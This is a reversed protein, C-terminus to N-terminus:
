RTVILHDIQAVEEDHIIRLDNFVMVDDRNKFARRLYFAVDQEQKIGAKLRSDTPMTEIQKEKIIM